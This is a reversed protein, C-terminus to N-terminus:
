WVWWRPVPLTAIPEVAQAGVLPCWRECLQRLLWIRPGRRVFVRLLDAAPAELEDGSSRWFGVIRRCEASAIIRLLRASYALSTSRDQGGEDLVPDPGFLVDHMEAQQRVIVSARILMDTRKAPNRTRRLGRWIASLEDGAALYAAHQDTIM